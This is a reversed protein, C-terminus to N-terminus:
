ASAGTATEHRDAAALLDSAFGPETLRYRRAMARVQAAQRAANVAHSDARIKRSRQEPTQTSATGAAPEAGTDLGMMRMERLARRAGFAQMEFWAIRGLRSFWASVGAIVPPNEDPTIRSHISVTHTTTNM